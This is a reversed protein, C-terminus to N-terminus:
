AQAGCGSLRHEPAQFGYDSLGHAVVVSTRTGWLRHEWWLLWQLSFSM